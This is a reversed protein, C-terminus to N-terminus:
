VVVEDVLGLKSVVEISISAAVIVTVDNLRCVSVSIYEGM